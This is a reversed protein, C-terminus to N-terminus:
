KASIFRIVEENLGPPLTDMAIDTIFGHQYGEAVINKIQQNQDNAM